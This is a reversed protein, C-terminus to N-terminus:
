ALINGIGNGIKSFSPTESCQSIEKKVGANNAPLSADFLLKSGCVCKAQDVIAYNFTQGDTARCHEICMSPYFNVPLTLATSSDLQINQDLNIKDLCMITDKVLYKECLVNATACRQINGSPDITLCTAINGGTGYVDGFLQTNADYFNGDAMISGDAYELYRRDATQVGGIM